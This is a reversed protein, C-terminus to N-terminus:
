LYRNISSKASPTRNIMNARLDPDKEPKEFDIEKDFTSFLLFSVTTEMLKIAGM